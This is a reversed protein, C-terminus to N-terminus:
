RVGPRFGCASVAIICGGGGSRSGPPYRLEVSNRSEGYGNYARLVFYYVRDADLNFITCRTDPGEWAPEDGYPEGAERSYLRYGLVPDRNADWAFSLDLAAAGAAFSFVSFFVLLAFGTETFRLNSYRFEFNSFFGLM